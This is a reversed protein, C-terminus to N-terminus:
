PQWRIGSGLAWQKHSETDRARMWASLKQLQSFFFLGGITGAIAHSSRTTHTRFPTQSIPLEFKSEYAPSKALCWYIKWDVYNILKNKWQVDRKEAYRLTMIQFCGGCGCESFYVVIFRAWLLWIDTERFSLSVSSVELRITFNFKISTNKNTKKLKFCWGKLKHKLMDPTCLTWAYINKRIVDGLKLEFNTLARDEFVAPITCFITSSFKRHWSRRSTFNLSCIFKMM